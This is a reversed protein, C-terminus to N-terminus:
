ERNGEAKVREIWLDAVQGPTWGFTRAMLELTAVKPVHHFARIKQVSSASRLGWAVALQPETYGWEDIVYQAPNTVTRPVRIHEFVQTM